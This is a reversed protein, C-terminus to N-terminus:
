FSFYICLYLLSKSVNKVVLLSVVIRLNDSGAIERVTGVPGSFASIYVYICYVRALMRLLWFVLLLGSTIVEMLRELQALLAVLLQFIYM